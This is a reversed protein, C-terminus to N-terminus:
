ARAGTREYHQKNALMAGFAVAVLVVLQLGVRINGEGLAFWAGGGFLTALVTLAPHILTHPSM